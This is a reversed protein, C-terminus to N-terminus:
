PAGKAGREEEVFRWRRAPETGPRYELAQVDFWIPLLHRVYFAHCVINPSTLDGDFIQLELRDDKEQYRQCQELLEDVEQRTEVLLGLHDWGPAAMPTDSEMLLIFQGDDPHLMHGVQGFLEYPGTRWGLVGGYFAEIDDRRAQDLAGRAFTLEMHNFRVQPM